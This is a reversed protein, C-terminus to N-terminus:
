AADQVPTLSGVVDPHAQQQAVMERFKQAMMQVYMQRANQFGRKRAERDLRRTSITERKGGVGTMNFKRM